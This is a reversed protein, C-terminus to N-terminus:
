NVPIEVTNINIDQDSVVITSSDYWGIKTTTLKLITGKGPAGIRDASVNIVFSSAPTSASAAENITITAGTLIKGEFGNYITCDGHTVPASTITEGAPGYVFDNFGFSYNLLWPRSKIVPLYVPSVKYTVTITLNAGPLNFLADANLALYDGVRYGKVTLPFNTCSPNIDVIGLYAVKNDATLTQMILRVDEDPTLNSYVAQDAAFTIPNNTSVSWWLQAASGTIFESGNVTSGDKRLMLWWRNTVAPPSYSKALSIDGDQAIFSGKVTGVYKTTTTPNLDQKTCGFAVLSIIALISFLRKM